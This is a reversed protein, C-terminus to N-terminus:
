SADAPAIVLEGAEVLEMIKKYDSNAPDVPVFILLGCYDVCIGSIEGSVNKSFKANSYM